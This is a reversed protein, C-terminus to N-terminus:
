RFAPPSRSRSRAYWSRPNDWHAIKAIRPRQDHPEHSVLLGDHNELMQVARWAGDFGRPPNLADRVRDLDIAAERGGRGRLLGACRRACAMMGSWTSAPAALNARAFLGTNAMRESNGIQVASLKAFHVTGTLDQCFSWGGFNDIVSVEDYRFGDVHYEALFSLANDIM